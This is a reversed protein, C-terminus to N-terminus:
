LAISVSCTGGQHAHFNLLRSSPIFFFARLLGPFSFFCPNNREGPEDDGMLWWEIRPNLDPSINLLIQQCLCAMKGYHKKFGGSLNAVYIRCLQGELRTGSIKEFSDGKKEVFLSYGIVVEESQVISTKIDSANTVFPCIGADSFAMLASGIKAAKCV